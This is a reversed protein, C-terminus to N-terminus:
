MRAHEGTQGQGLQRASRTAAHVRLCSLIARQHSTLTTNTVQM